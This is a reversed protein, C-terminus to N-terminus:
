GASRTGFLAAVLVSLAARYCEGMFSGLAGGEIVENQGGSDENGLNIFGQIQKKAASNTHM